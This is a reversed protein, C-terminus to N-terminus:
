PFRQRFLAVAQATMLAFNYIRCEILGARSQLDGGNPSHLYPNFRGFGFCHDPGGDDFVGDFIM